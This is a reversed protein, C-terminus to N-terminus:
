AQEGFAIINWPADAADGDHETCVLTIVGAAKGTVSVFAEYPAAAQATGVAAYVADAFDDAVTLTFAGQGSRAATTVNYSGQVTPPASADSFCWTKAVGPHYHARGPTVAVANSSAAEMEAQSAAALGAAAAGWKVGTTEGSDAILVDDDDGVGLMQPAGSGDGILIQGKTTQTVMTVASSGNGILVAGTTLSTQGTGGNGVPLTGSVGTGLAVQAWAPSNSSGTNTLSRTSNADKALRALANAGSAYVIDGQASVKAPATELQQDRLYTNLDSALVVYGSAWTKPTSWAM